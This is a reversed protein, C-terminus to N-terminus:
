RVLEKINTYMPLEKRKTLGLVQAPGPVAHAHQPEDRQLRAFVPDPLRRTCMSLSYEDCIGYRGFIEVGYAGAHRAGDAQPSGPAM